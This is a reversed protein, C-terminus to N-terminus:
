KTKASAITYSVKVTGTYEGKGKLTATTDTIASVTIDAVVANTNKAKVAALITAEQKDAIKGLELTTIDDSLAKADSEYKLVVGLTFPNIGVKYMENLFYNTYRDQAFYQFSAYSTELGVHITDPTDIVMIIDKGKETFKAFPSNYITKLLNVEMSNFNLSVDTQFDVQRDVNWTVQLDDLTYATTNAENDDVKAVNYNKSVFTMDKLLKIVYKQLEAGKLDRPVTIVNQYGNEYIDIIRNYWTVHKSDYVMNRMEAVINGFTAANKFAAQAMVDTLTYPYQDDYARKIWVSIAKVLKKYKIWEGETDKWDQQLNEFKRMVLEDKDGYLNTNKLYRQVLNHKFNFTTVTRQTSIKNFIEPLVANPNLTGDPATAKIVAADYVKKIDKM